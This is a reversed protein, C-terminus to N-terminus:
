TTKTLKTRCILRARKRSTIAPGRKGSFVVKWWQFVNQFHLCRLHEFHHYTSQVPIRRGLQRQQSVHLAQPEQQKIWYSWWNILSLQEMKPAKWFKSASIQVTSIRDRRDRRDGFFCGAAVSDEKIPQTSIPAEALHFASKGLPNCRWIKLDPSISNQKVGKPFPYIFSTLKKWHSSLHWNM